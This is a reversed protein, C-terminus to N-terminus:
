PGLLKFGFFQGLVALIIFSGLGLALGILAYTITNKAKAMGEKNGGSMSLMIGGVVTFILSLVIILFIAGSILFPIFNNTIFSIDQAKLVGEPIVTPLWGKPPSNIPDPGGFGSSALVVGSFLMNVKKM